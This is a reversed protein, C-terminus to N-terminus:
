FSIWTDRRGRRQPHWSGDCFYKGSDLNFISQSSYVFSLVVYFISSVLYLVWSITLFDELSRICVHLAHFFYLVYCWVESRLSRVIVLRM